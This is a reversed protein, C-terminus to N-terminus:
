EGSVKMLNIYANSLSKISGPFEFCSFLYFERHGQGGWCYCCLKGQTKQRARYMKSTNLGANLEICVEM